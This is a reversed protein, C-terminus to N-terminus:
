ADAASAELAQAEADIEQMLEIWDSEVDLTAMVSAFGFQIRSLFILGPMKAERVGKRFAKRAGLMGGKLNLDSLKEAYAKDYRFRGDALIPAFAAALYEEFFEWEEDDLDDPMQWAAGLVERFDPGRVGEAVMTRVKRLDRVIDPRYRQVCGFDLFAVRGDDPFLYNGPHPDANFFGFVYLSRFLFRYLARGVREREADDASAVLEDWTQGRVFEMVLVHDASLEEIVEPIWVDESGRWQDAFEMQNNLECGYDCEELVRATIDQLSREVDVKSLLLSLANRLLDANKLDNRIADAIGPYQVKVAVERGDQLVARYVQGISAAAVPERDFTRFLRDPKKGLDREIVAEIERWRLPRVKTQLRALEERYVEAYGPPALDDIYSLMQGVKMPLGKMGGLSEAITKAAQKHFGPATRDLGRGIAIRGAAGLLDNGLGVGLTGMRTMREVRGTPIKREPKRAM